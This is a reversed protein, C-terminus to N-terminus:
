LRPKLYGFMEFDRSHTFANIELKLLENVDM